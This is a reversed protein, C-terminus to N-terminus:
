GLSTSANNELVKRGITTLQEATLNKSSDGLSENFAAVIADILAGSQLDKYTLLVGMDAETVQEAPMNLEYARYKLGENILLAMIWKTESADSFRDTLQKIDGYRKQIQEVADLDFLVPYKKGRLEIEQM